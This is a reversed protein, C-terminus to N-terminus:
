NVHLGAMKYELLQSQYALTVRGLCNQVIEDICSVITQELDAKRYAWTFSVENSDVEVIFIKMNHPPESVIICLGNVHLHAVVRCGGQRFQFKIDRAVPTLLRQLMKDSM